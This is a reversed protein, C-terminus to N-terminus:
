DHQLVVCAKPNFHLYIEEGEALDSTVPLKARFPQKGVQIQCDIIDGLFIAKVIKGKFVNMEQRNGDRSLAISEPRVTVWVKAGPALGPTVLCSLKGHETAISALGSASEEALTGEFFNVQGVFQAVFKSKPHLYLDKPTSEQLIKGNLMVAIRDSMALAEIQDHTVYLTTIGLRRVLEKLELRLEERLKADLNSLPEDLLLVQPKSVLARALAVRQQQGGSLYPAPRDALHEMQVLALAETVRRKIENAAPRPRAQKLPFAVNKFVTMHPWIAYSQFVMGIPRENPPVFTSSSAVVRDGIIIEGSTPRELGAICRLTTSKGCGSPGLLTYFESPQVEFDVGQLAHALGDVAEFTKTLGSVKVRM